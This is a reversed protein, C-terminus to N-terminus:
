KTNFKFGAANKHGGGGFSKAIVSVDTDGKSRLSWCHEQGGSELTRQYAYAAMTSNKKEIIYNCLDSTLDSDEEEGFVVDIPISAKPHPFGINARCVLGFLAEIREQKKQLLPMGKAVMTDVFTKEDLRALDSWTAFEKPISDLGALVEEHFLLRKHWLDRDQVYAFLAPAATGHVHEWALMAGSKQMDFHCYELGRLAEEATKHHDLVQLSSVQAKLAVLIERPYSFDVIYVSDTSELAPPPEQHLVPIYQASEGYRMYFALAAAFGDLCHKKKDYSHFLVKIPM